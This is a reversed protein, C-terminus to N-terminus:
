DLHRVATFAGSRLAQVLGHEDSFQGSFQTAYLGVREAVHADSAGVLRIRPLSRFKEARAQEGANHNTTRWEIADFQRFYEAAVKDSVESFGGWRFPHALITAGGGDRVRAALEARTVDGVISRSTGYVLLHGDLCSVEQGRLVLLPGHEVGSLSRTLDEPTWLYDHDTIVVADLEKRRASAVLESLSQHSCVSHEKTHTHLDVIM